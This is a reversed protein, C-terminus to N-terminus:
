NIISIINTQKKTRIEQVKETAVFKDYRIHKNSLRGYFWKILKM